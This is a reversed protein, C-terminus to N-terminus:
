GTITHLRKLNYALCVLNWEGKVKEVGRLMFQRFGMVHKIVGFTTEITSKRKAYIMKGEKTQLRHKMKELSTPNKPLSEEKKFREELPQNHAEKGLSIYPIINKDECLKINAESFYGTDALMDSPKLNPHQSFWTLTPFIEQKDNTNQTVHQHVILRSDHEVSAQANYCQEFGGGSTKMIRSEEDTLNIQEKPLPDKSPPKPKKGGTKKGTLKEKEERKKMKEDYFAKEKEYRQEARAEIKEKAEKIVSIRDERRAIEDPISLGDNENESDAEKAKKMLTEVEAELQKQLKVAHAYSLAKHKSANAKVKTGDLSVKGVKLLGMEKAIMLIQVFLSELQPLFRKRFGAITDHDPHTNAAIYRFAVSDYTAREIKRSSFTGTAYGYFLLSLLLKPEYAKAGSTNNSYHKVIESLDLADTIQVIFRALHEQPLWEDISPPLLYLQTRNTQKFRHQM